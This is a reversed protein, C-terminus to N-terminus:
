LMSRATPCRIHAKRVRRPGPVYLSREALDVQEWLLNVLETTRFGHNFAMQIMTADRHGHHGTQKAADAM